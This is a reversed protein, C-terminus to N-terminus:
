NGSSYNEPRSSYDKLPILYWGVLYTIIGPWFGTFVTLFIFVLRVITVDFKFEEAIGACIGAIKKEKELRYLKM